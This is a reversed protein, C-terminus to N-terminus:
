YKKLQRLIERSKTHYGVFEEYLLDIIHRIRVRDNPSCEPLPTTTIDIYYLVMLQHYTDSDYYTDSSHLHSRCVLGGSSIHFVLDTKEECMTCGDLHLGHGLFFLLKLEFVFSILEEDLGDDMKAFLKDLFAMMKPHDLDPSITNRVLQLIHSMYTYRMIDQKISEFDELLEGDQLSSMDKDPNIDLRIKNGVQSLFRNISNMKKVGHAIVTYHGKDSYLYLIKSTDKYNVQHLVYADIRM